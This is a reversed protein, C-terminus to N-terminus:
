SFIRELNEKIDEEALHIYIETSSISKHGLAEKVIMLDIKKKILNTGYSHRLLHPYVKKNIAKRSVNKLMRNWSPYSTIKVIRPNNELEEETFSDNIYRAVLIMLSHPVYAKRERGGKGFVILEGMSTPMHKNAIFLQWDFDDNKIRFLEGKRLGCYYTLLTMIKYRESPMADAISKISEESLVFPIKREKRGTIKSLIIKNINNSQEESLALETKYQAVWGFLNKLFARSVINNNGGYRMFENVNEQTIEKFQNFFRQFYSLYHGITVPKLEKSILYSKFM